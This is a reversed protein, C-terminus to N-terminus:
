FIVLICKVVDNRTDRREAVANARGCVVTWGPWVDGHVTVCYVVPQEGPPQVYEKSISPGSVGPKPPAKLVRQEPVSTWFLSTLQVSVWNEALKIGSGVPCTKDTRLVNGYPVSVSRAPPFTVVALGPVTGGDEKVM